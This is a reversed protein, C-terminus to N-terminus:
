NVKRVSIDSLDYVMAKEATVDQDFTHGSSVTLAMKKMLTGFDVGDFSEMFNVECKPCMAFRRYHECQPGYYLVQVQSSSIKHLLEGFGTAGNASNRKSYGEKLKEDTFVVIIHQAGPRWATHSVAYDVAGPTFEEGEVERDLLSRFRATDKTLNMFLFEEHSYSLLGIEWDVQSQGVAASELDRVFANVSDRVGRICTKMSGSNDICFMLDAKKSDARLQSQKIQLGM